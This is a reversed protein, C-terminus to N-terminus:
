QIHTSYDRSYTLRDDADTQMGSIRDTHGCTFGFRSCICDGLKACLYDM